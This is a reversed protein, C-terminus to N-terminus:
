YTFLLRCIVVNKCSFEVFQQVNLFALPNSCSLTLTVSCPKEKSKSRHANMSWEAIEAFLLLVSSM